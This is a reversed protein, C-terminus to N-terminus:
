PKLILAKAATFDGTVFAGYHNSKVRQVLATEAIWTMLNKSFDDEEMWAEISMEDEVFVASKSFDGVLFTGETFGNNEIVPVGKIVTGDTSTFPPLIYHGNSAKDLQMATVDSPHLVVYNADFNNRSVQDIAICVVDQNNANPVSLSFVTGAVTFPTANTLIGTLNDGLGDGSLIESDEKLLLQEVLEQKIEVEMQDIRRLIERSLKSRVAIKKVPASSEVIDFDTLPKVAGEGVTGAGGDPNKQESWTLIGGDMKANTIIDKIFPNRRAIRTLGSELQTIQRNGTLNGAITMLDAAKITFREVGVKKKYSNLFDEKKSILVNKLSSNNEKIVNKENLETIEQGQKKISESQTENVKKLEAVTDNLSVVDKKIEEKYASLDKNFDEALKEATNEM